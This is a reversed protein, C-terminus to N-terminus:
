VIAAPRVARAIGLVVLGAIGVAGCLVLGDDQGYLGALPAFLGLAARRIMSEVSLVAARRRSDTVERNLLPKTLPAYVGHAVAQIVLLALMWVGSGARALAVFSIALTGLLGWLVADDGFWARLRHTARAAFAAILYVSAFVAGIAGTGLGREALYPQYVYATARLLLFVVASYGVLWALRPNSGVEALAGIAEHWWLRVRRSRVRDDRMRFAAIAAAAAVLGTIAYPLVLDIEALLGGGAFAIGCGALHWASAVSERRAYDATRGYSALLDYLYASDAGSCLAISLAALAEAVAFTAFSHAGIALGCSGIMAVAGLMMSRRRGFRDAFVGTPLEAAVVAAAYIGGLALREAYSLGRDAQFVMFVPVFLYSTALLRFAYFVRLDRDLARDARMM